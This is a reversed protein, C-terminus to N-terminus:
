CAGRTARVREISLADFPVFIDLWDVRVPNILGTRRAWKRRRSIQSCKPILERVKSLSLAAPAIGGGSRLTPVMDMHDTSNTSVMNLVSGGAGRENPAFWTGPRPESLRM